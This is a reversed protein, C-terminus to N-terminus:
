IPNLYLIFNVMKFLDQFHAQVDIFIQARVVNSFMKLVCIFFQNHFNSAKQFCKPKLILLSETIKYFTEKTDNDLRQTVFSIGFMSTIDLINFLM